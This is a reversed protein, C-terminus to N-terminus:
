RLLAVTGAAGPSAMEGVHKPLFRPLPLGDAPENAAGGPVM